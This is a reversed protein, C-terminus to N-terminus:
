HSYYKERAYKVAKEAVIIEIFNNINCLPLKISLLKNSPTQNIHLCNLFGLFSM